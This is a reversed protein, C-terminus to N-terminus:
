SQPYEPCVAQFVTKRDDKSWGDERLKRLLNNAALKRGMRKSFNDPHKCVSFGVTKIDEVQLTVLTSRCLFPEYAAAVIVHPSEKKNYFEGTLLDIAGHSVKVDLEKGNSLNFKM